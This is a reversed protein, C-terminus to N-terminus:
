IQATLGEQLKYNIYDLAAKRLEASIDKPLYPALPDNSKPRQYRSLDGTVHDGIHPTLNLLELLGQKDKPTFNVEKTVACRTEWYTMLPSKNLLAVHLYEASSTASIEGEILERVLNLPNNVTFHCALFCYTAIYSKATSSFIDRAEKTLYSPIFEPPQAVVTLDLQKILDLANVLSNNTDKSM